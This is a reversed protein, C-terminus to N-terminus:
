LLINENNTFKALNNSLQSFPMSINSDYNSFNTLIALDNPQKIKNSKFTAIILILLISKM